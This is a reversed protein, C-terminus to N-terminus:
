GVLIHIIDIIAHTCFSPTFILWIQSNHQEIFKYWKKNIFINADRSIPIYRYVFLMISCVSNIIATILVIRDVLPSRIFDIM